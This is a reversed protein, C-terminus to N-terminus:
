LNMCSARPYFTDVILMYGDQQCSVASTNNDFELALSELVNQYRSSLAVLRIYFCKKSNGKYFNWRFECTHFECTFKSCIFKWMHFTIKM